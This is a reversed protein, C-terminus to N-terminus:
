PPGSNERRLAAYTEPDEVWRGGRYTWIAPFDRLASRAREGRRETKSVFHPRSGGYLRDLGPLFWSADEESYVLRDPHALYFKGEEESRALRAQWYARTRVTGSGVALAAVILAAARAGASAFRGLLYAASLWATTSTIFVARYWTGPTEHSLLVAPATPFTAVLGAGIVGALLLCARAAPRPDRILAWAAAGVLVLFLVWGAPSAALTYPLAGLYRLYDRGSIAPQPYAAGAGLLAWRYGAYGLVLLGAAAGVGYRRKAFAYPIAFAALTAAYIEKSLMAAAACPLFLLTPGVAGAGARRCAADLAWVAALSWALGEMYHRASTFEHVAITAPLCLWLASAAAASLAPVGFRSLVVFVLLASAITALADHVRAARPSVGFAHTDTWYSVVQMPVLSAGTGWRRLLEPDTFAAAPSAMAAAAAFQLPDDEYWWASTSRLYLVVFAGAFGVVAAGLWRRRRPPERLADPM